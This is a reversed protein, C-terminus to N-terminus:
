IKGPRWTQETNRGFGERGTVRLRKAQFRVQDELRDLREELAKEGVFGLVSLKSDKGPRWTQETNRGFGERGCVRLCKAKFRVQDELRSLIEEMAKEGLFGLVSLKSDKGPRWTQETNRGFGERGTVRLRKAKFRVQDELRDLREEM